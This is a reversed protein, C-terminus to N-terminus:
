LNLMHFTTLTSNPFYHLLIAGSSYGAEAMRAAGIQCLGVGHGWGAGHLVFHDSQQEVIFASSLLHSESLVRRIELEKGFEVSRESGVLRIRSLRGSAGRQLPVIDLLRGIPMPLKANVISTLRERAYTVSWRFFDVTKTDYHNLIRSLFASENVNCFSSPSSMIWQRAIDEPMENCGDKLMSAELQSHPTHLAADSPFSSTSPRTGSPQEVFDHKSRLYPIQVDEWCTDFSEMIGGCCKSFRADCLQGEYSLVLDATSEVAAVATANERGFGQYRQCHDDACVDFGTHSEQNYWRIYAYTELGAEDQLQVPQSSNIHKYRHQKQAMLWSRAVIAQAKVFELPADANMESSVVSKLYDQISVDNVLSIKGAATMKFLLSGRFNQTEEQQWHFQLGITVHPLTFYSLDDQPTFVLRHFLQGGWEMMGNQARVTHLGSCSQGNATYTGHLFFAHEGAESIGVLVNEKNM